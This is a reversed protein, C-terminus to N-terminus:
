SRRFSRSRILHFLLCLIGTSKHIGIIKEDYITSAFRIPRSRANAHSLKCEVSSIMERAISARCGYRRKHLRKLRLQFFSSKRHYNTRVKSSCKARPTCTEASFVWRSIGISHLIFFVQFIFAQFGVSVSGGVSGDRAVARNM